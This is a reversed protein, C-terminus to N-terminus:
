FDDDDAKQLANSMADLLTDVIERMTIVRVMTKEAKAKDKETMKMRQEVSEKVGVTVLRGQFTYHLSPVSVTVQAKGDKCRVKLTFDTYIPIDGTPNKRYGNYFDGKYTVIGADKDCFDLGAKSKGDSGTWDSLAEMARVYLTAATADEVTVVRKQEYVGKELVMQYVSDMGDDQASATLSMILAFLIMMRKM